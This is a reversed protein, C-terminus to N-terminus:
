IPIEEFLVKKFIEFLEDATYDIKQEIIGGAMDDHGGGFGIGKLAKEIVIAANWKRYESRLSLNIKKGNRAALVVFDLEQLTLFFDGLVGLLNQMCGDEFFIFGFNKYTKLKQIGRSFFSLDNMEIDNRMIKNVYEMDANHWLDSYAIVDHYNVGRTLGATDKNLGIMMATAVNKTFTQHTKLYYEYVITSTSGYNHRLDVYHVDDPIEILHHDIIGIEDGPLDTVNRNHKCGDVIIIKDKSSMKLDDAHVLKIHLDMIMRKLSEREINGDYTITSNVSFREMLKQLGYASAIADHDPFNHTQIYVAHEYRLKTFFELIQEKSKM